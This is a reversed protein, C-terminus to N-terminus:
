IVARVVGIILGLGGVVLLLGGTSGSAGFMMERRRARTPQNGVVLGIFVGLLGGLIAGIGIGGAM